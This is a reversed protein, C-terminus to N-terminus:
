IGARISLNVLLSHTQSVWAGMMLRLLLVTPRRARKREGSEVECHPGQHAIYNEPGTLLLGKNKRLKRIAIASPYKVIMILFQLALGVIINTISLSFSECM